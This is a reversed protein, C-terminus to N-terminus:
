KTERSQNLSSVEQHFFKQTNRFWCFPNNPNPDQQPKHFKSSEQLARIQLAPAPNDANIYLDPVAM